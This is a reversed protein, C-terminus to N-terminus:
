VITKKSFGEKKRSFATKGFKLAKKEIKLVEELRKLGLNAKCNYVAVTWNKTNLTLSNITM